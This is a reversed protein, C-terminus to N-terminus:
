CISNATHMQNDPSVMVPMGIDLLIDRCTPDELVRSLMEWSHLFTDSESPFVSTLTTQDLFLAVESDSKHPMLLMKSM